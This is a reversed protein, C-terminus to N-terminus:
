LLKKAYNKVEKFGKQTLASIRIIRNGPFEQIIKELGDKANPLDIKNALILYGRKLQGFQAIQYDIEGIGKLLGVKAIRACDLLHFIIDAQRMFRLTQAMARRIEEDHNIGDTLGTTDVLEFQKEGKGWPLTLTLTQIDRTHHATDSVLLSKAEAISLTKSYCGREYNTFNITVSELDLYAAFNLTFLTKGTNSQGLVIMRKM